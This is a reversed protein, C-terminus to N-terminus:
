AAARSEHKSSRKQKIRERATRVIICIDQLERYRREFAELEKEAQGLLADQLDRSRLVDDVSRYAVGHKDKISVYARRNGEDVTDDEVRVIRILSRAQDLRYSQAANQDDWEFHKHLPHDAERAADVVAKPELRGGVKDRIAALSEGIVQPDAKDAAKIRLPEDERFLYKIM